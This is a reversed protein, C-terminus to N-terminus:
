ISVFGHSLKKEWKLPVVKRLLKTGPTWMSKAELCWSGCNVPACLYYGYDMTNFKSTCFLYWKQFLIDAKTYIVLILDRHFSIVYNTLISATRFVFFTLYLTWVQGFLVSVYVFSWWMGTFNYEHNSNTQLIMIYITFDSIPITFLATDTPMHLCLLKWHVTQM